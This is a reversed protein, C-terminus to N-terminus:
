YRVAASISFINNDFEFQDVTSDNTRFIYNASLDLNAIPSYTLGVNLDLTEDERGGRYSREYYNAGASASVLHSLTHRVGVSGGTSQVSQGQGGVEFDRSLGVLVTTNPTTFHTLDVSFSLSDRDSGGRSTERQQYGGRVQGLLKPALEGRAGVNFYHDTYNVGPIRAGTFDQTIPNFGRRSDNNTERYRYGVSLDVLPTLEYYFNVPVSYVDRDTFGASDFDLKSYNIGSAISTLETLEYEGRFNAEYFDREILGGELNLNALGPDVQVLQQFSADFRLSLRTQEWYSELFVNSQNSDLDSNDDYLYFDERYFLNVNANEKSGINLELGPSLIFILDSEEDRHELFVNDDWRATASGNFYLNTNEGISVLAGASPTVFPFLLISGVWLPLGLHTRTPNSIM